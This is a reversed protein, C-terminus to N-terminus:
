LEKHPRDDSEPKVGGGGGGGADSFYDSAEKAAQNMRDEPTNDAGARRRRRRYLWVDVMITLVTGCVSGILSASFVIIAATTTDM